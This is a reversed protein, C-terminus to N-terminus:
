RPPPPLSWSPPPVPSGTTHERKHSRSLTAARPAKRSAHQHLHVHRRRPRRPRQPEDKNEGTGKKKNPTHTPSTGTNYINWPRIDHGHHTQLTGRKYVNWQCLFGQGGRDARLKVVTHGFCRQQSTFSVHAAVSIKISLAAAAAAAVLVTAAVVVTVATVVITGYHTHPPGTMYVPSFGRGGRRGCSSAWPARAGGAVPLAAPLRQAAGRRGGWTAAQWVGTEGAARKQRRAAPPVLPAGYLSQERLCGLYTCTSDSDRPGRCFQREGSWLLLVPAGVVVSRGMEADHMCRAGRSDEERLGNAATHISLPLDGDVTSGRLCHAALRLPRARSGRRLHSRRLCVIIPFPLPSWPLPAQPSFFGFFLFSRCASSPRRRPSPHVPAIPMVALDVFFLSPPADLNLSPAAAAGVEGSQTQSSTWYPVPPPRRRQSTPRPAPM